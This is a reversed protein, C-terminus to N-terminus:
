NSARDLLRFYAENDMGLERIIRMIINLSLLEGKKPITAISESAVRYLVWNYEDEGWLSFRYMEMLRKFVRPPISAPAPM